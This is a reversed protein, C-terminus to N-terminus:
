QRGAFIPERKDPLRGDYMCKINDLITYKKALLYQQQQNVGARRKVGAVTLICYLYMRRMQSAASFM